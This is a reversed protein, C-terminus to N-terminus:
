SNLNIDDIGGCAGEVDLTKRIELCTKEAIDSTKDCASIDTVGACELNESHSVKETFNVKDFINESADLNDSEIKDSQQSTDAFPKALQDARKM